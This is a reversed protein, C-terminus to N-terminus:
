HTLICREYYHNPFLISFDSHPYVLLFEVRLRPFIFIRQWEDILGEGDMACMAKQGEIRQHSFMM